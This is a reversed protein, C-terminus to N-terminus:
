GSGLRAKRPHPHPIQQKKTPAHRPRLSHSHKEPTANKKPQHSYRPIDISILSRHRQGLSFGNWRSSKRRHFFRPNLFNQLVVRSPGINIEGASLNNGLTVTPLTPGHIQISRRRLIRRKRSGLTIDSSDFNGGRIIEQYAYSEVVLVSFEAFKVHIREIEDFWPIPGQGVLPTLFSTDDGWHLVRFKM